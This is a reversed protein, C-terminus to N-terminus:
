DKPLLAFVALTGLVAIAGIIWEFPFIGTLRVHDARRETSEDILMLLAPINVFFLIVRLFNWYGNDILAASFGAVVAAFLMGLLGVLLLRGMRTSGRAASGLAIFGITAVAGPLNLLGGIISLPWEPHIDNIWPLQILGWFLFPTFALSILYRVTQVQKPVMHAM